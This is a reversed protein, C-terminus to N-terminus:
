DNRMELREHFIRFKYSGSGVVGLSNNGVIVGRGRREFDSSFEPTM